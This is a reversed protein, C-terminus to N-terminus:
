RPCRSVFTTFTPADAEGATGPRTASTFAAGAAAAFPTSSSMGNQLTLSSVWTQRKEPMPPKLRAASAQPRRVTTKQSRSASRCRSRAWWQGPTGMMPSTLSTSAMSRATTASPAPTNLSPQPSLPSAPPLGTELDPLRLQGACGNRRVAPTGQWGALEAPLRSPAPSSRQSQGCVRRTTSRRRGRQHTNSFGRPSAESASGAAIGPTSRSPSRPRAPRVTHSIRRARSRRPYSRGRSPSPTGQIGTTGATAIPAKWPRSLSKRMARRLSTAWRSSAPSSPCSCGPLLSESLRCSVPRGAESPPRSACRFEARSAPPVTPSVACCRRWPLPRVHRRLPSCESALPKGSQDVAWRSRPASPM